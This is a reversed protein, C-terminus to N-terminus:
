ARSNPFIRLEAEIYARPNFFFKQRGRRRNCGTALQREETEEMYAGFEGLLSVATPRPPALALATLVWCTLEYHYVNEGETYSKPSPFIRIGGGGVFGGPSPFIQLEGWIPESVQFFGSGEGGGGISFCSVHDKNKTEGLFNSFIVRPVNLNIISKKM